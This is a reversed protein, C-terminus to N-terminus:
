YGNYHMAETTQRDQRTEEGEEEATESSSSANKATMVFSVSLVWLRNNAKKDQNKHGYSLSAMIDETCQIRQSIPTKISNKKSIKTHDGSLHLTYQMCCVAAAPCSGACPAATQPPIILEQSNPLCRRGLTSCPLAVMSVCCARSARVSWMAM